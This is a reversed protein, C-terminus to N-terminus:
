KSFKWTCSSSFLFEEMMMIFGSILFIVQNDSVIKEKDGKVLTSLLETSVYNKFLDHDKIKPWLSPAMKLSNCRYEGGECPEETKNLIFLNLINKVLEVDADIFCTIKLLGRLIEDYPDTIERLLSFDSIRKLNM